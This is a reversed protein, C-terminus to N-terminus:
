QLGFLFICYDSIEVLSDMAFQIFSWEQLIGTTQDCGYFSANRSAQDFYMSRIEGSVRVSDMTHRESSLPAQLSDVYVSEQGLPFCIGIRPCQGHLFFVFLLPPTHIIENGALKPERIYEIPRQDTEMRQKQTKGESGQEGGGCFGQGEGPEVTISTGNAGEVQV